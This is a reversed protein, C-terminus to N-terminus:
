HAYVRNKFIKEAEAVTLHNIRNDKLWKQEGVLSLQVSREMKLLKLGESLKPFFGEPRLCWKRFVGFLIELDNGLKQVGSYNFKASSMIVGNFLSQDIGSALSRWVRVFYIANLHEELVALKGQLYELAGLFSRSVVLGEEGKEQWQKRNRLYDRCCADFGRLVVTSLKEVWESRFKDLKNVEKDLTNDGTVEALGGSLDSGSPELLDDQNLGIELFFVDEAWEKLVSVFSSAANISIAVKILADDDTLATLGEAELCRLLLGDLFKQILPVGTLSVFRSKLSVSPISRCREIVFSLHRLVISSIPPSKYDEQGSFPAGEQNKTLWSRENELDPKLKDLTDNLEINAWLDLWDPRDCFVSLSSIKHQSGDEPFFLIGSNAVLSQVKKDFSIMLDILHLWSIRAQLNIEPNNEEDLQAVYMPFIEKALFMSLSAVMASVWEERCSYGSLLAEDVLPQLMEDMSDVYDRTIKYVLAFIFEPKDIWKSFHRQSDISLPNVLEEIAWLPQRLAVERNHGELQRGKRRRQLEQLSCLALFSECYQQKLDGQVTFLPNQLHTSGNTDDSLSNSSSLPPPWKLSVLLARHDAIAQPRLTALARDVRHDAASVLQTWQPNIKTIRALVDEILKLSKIAGVRIDEANNKSPQRRLTRNVITSVADEVDGVLTDLKLATEAYTRVAEVRAVERALAPLEEGLLRGSGGDSSPPPLTTSQLDSLKSKIDTFIGSIQNSHFTYDALLQSFQRGLDLLNQDLNQCETRLESLLTPAVTHLDEEAAIKANLFALTAPSVSSLPPLPRLRSSNESRNM